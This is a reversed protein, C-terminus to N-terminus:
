NISNLVYSTLIADSYTRFFYRLFRVFISSNSSGVNVLRIDGKNPDLIRTEIFQVTRIGLFNHFPGILQILKLMNSHTVNYKTFRHKLFLKTM